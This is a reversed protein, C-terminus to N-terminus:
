SFVFRGDFDGKRRYVRKDALTIVDRTRNRYLLYPDELDVFCQDVQQKCHLVAYPTYPDFCTKHLM